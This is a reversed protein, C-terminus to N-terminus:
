KESGRGSQRPDLHRLTLTWGLDSRWTNLAEEERNKCTTYVVMDVTRLTNLKFRTILLRLCRSDVLLKKKECM